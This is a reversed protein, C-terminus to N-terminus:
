REGEISHGSPKKGLRAEVAEAAARLCAAMGDERVHTFTALPEAGNLSVSYTNEGTFRATENSIIIAM